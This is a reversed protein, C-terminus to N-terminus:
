AGVQTRERIKRSRESRGKASNANLFRERAEQIEVWSSEAPAGFAEAKKERLLLFFENLTSFDGVDERMVDQMASHEADFEGDSPRARYWFNNELRDARQSM